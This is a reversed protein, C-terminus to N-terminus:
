YRDPRWGKPVEIFREGPPKPKSPPRIRGIMRRAALAYKFCDLPENRRYVVRWRQVPRGRVMSAELVESALGKLFDGSCWDAAPLHVCGPGADLQLRALILSKSEADGVTYLSCPRDARAPIPTGIVPRVGARGVVARAGRAQSPAVFEYVRSPLFGADLAAIRIGLTSGGPQRYTTDLEEALAEWPAPTSATDGYHIGRALIWSEEAEGWGITLTEVRDGQIDVGMTVVVVGHPADAEFAERRRILNGVEVREVRAAVERGLWLNNFTDMARPEGRKHKRRARQFAAVVDRLNSDAFDLRSLGFSAVTPDEPAVTSRWEGPELILRREADTIGHSCAVCVIVPQAATGVADLGGFDLAEFDLPQFVGCSPCPVNWRRGDGDRHWVTIPAVDSTPTSAMVIKRDSAYQHTRARSVDIPHGEDGVMDPWRDVEDQILM